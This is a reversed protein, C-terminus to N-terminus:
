SRRGHIRPNNWELPVIGLWDGVFRQQEDEKEKAAPLQHRERLMIKLLSCCKKGCLLSRDSESLQVFVGLRLIISATM